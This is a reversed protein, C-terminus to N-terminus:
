DHRLSEIPHVRAARAAPLLTALLAVGTMVSIIAFFTIPDTPAVRFLIVTLLRGLFFALALGLALGLGLQILAQGLVLRLVAARSAGLAMRVGIERTRQRVGASMVGYVGIAALLLAALGFIVFMSGFIWYIVGEGDIAKRLTNVDYLPLQPDVTAVAARMLTTIDLPAGSTRAVIMMEDGPEAQALPVIIGAQDPYNLGGLNADPIIGVITRWPVELPGMPLRIRSGIANGAPFERQAFTASVLAVPESHGDDAATLTRGRMPQAAIIDVFAPSAIGLPARPYDRRSQYVRGEIEYPAPDLGLGPVGSTLAIAPVGPVRELQALLERYFRHRAAPDPYARGPLEIRSVFVQRTDFGFDTRTLNIVSKITLGAGVLLGVSLAIELVVLARSLRGLRFSTSARSDDKLVESANARAAQWAPIAGALLAALATLAAVFLIVPPHVRIDIWFPAAANAIANTFLRMGLVALISGLLAGSAALLMSETLFLRIIRFRSAGLANRVAIERARLVGRGILINAVNSCAILLVLAVATLMTYLLSSVRRPLFAEKLPMVQMELDSTGQQPPGELRQPRRPRTPYTAAFRRALTTLEARAQEITADPALRGIVQALPSRDRAVRQVDMRWPLWVEQTQPFEFREPMVGIVTASEGQAQIVRGVIAPDAAFDNQWVDYSLLVVLPAGPRDDASTITRGMLPRVRLLEFLGATVLVGDYREPYTGARLTVASLTFAALGEFSRQESRLDNFEHYSPLEFAGPVIERAYTVNALRHASDFPLDNLVVGYVISFMLTTLGIGLTLALVASLTSGPTKGLARVGVRVDNRLDSLPHLPDNDRLEERWRDQNGFNARAARGADEPTMGTEIYRQAQMELHFAVEEDHDALDDLGRLRLWWARLRRM